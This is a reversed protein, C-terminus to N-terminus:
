QTSNEAGLIKDAYYDLLTFNRRLELCSHLYKAKNEVEAKEVAKEPAM